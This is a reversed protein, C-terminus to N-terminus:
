ALGEDSDRLMAEGFQRNAETLWGEEPPPLQLYFGQRSLDALVTSVEARALKRLPSLDMQMALALRGAHQRVPEPLAVPDAGRPLYLYLGDRRESRYIDVPVPGTEGASV